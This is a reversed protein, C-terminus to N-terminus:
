LLLCMNYTDCGETDTPFFDFGVKQYSLIARYNNKKVELCICKFGKALVYEKVQQILRSFMGKRRYMNNVNVFPIYCIEKDPRNAYFVILGELRGCSDRCTCFEAYMKWKASLEQLRQNDRLSPFADEAQVQLYARLEEIVLQEITTRM